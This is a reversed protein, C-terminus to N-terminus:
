SKRGGLGDFYARLRRGAEELTESRKAFCFRLYRLGSPAEVYFPSLPIAAVGASRTLEEAVLRDEGDLVGGYDALIFYTGEPQRWVLPVSSVSKLFVDLRSRFADSLGRVEALGEGRDLYRALAYQLPANASFVVFQHVKRFEEMLGSSLSVVFGLKWGTAHFLKGFSFCSLSRSGWYAHHLASVHRFPRFVLWAYVEDSIVIARPARRQALEALRDWWERRWVVTTPNHPTNVIICVTKESLVDELRNWDPEWGPAVLPVCRVRGGQVEVGPVYSDYAPEFVVVEGGKEVWTALCTYIAQTAGATVTVRRLPDVQIGLTEGILRAIAEQLAPVGVMPAYQNMLPDRFARKVEEILLLPPGFDPFGQALNVAGVSRALRTMEAFISIGYRHLKGRVWFGGSGGVM